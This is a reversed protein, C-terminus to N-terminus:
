FVVYVSGRKLARSWGSDLMMQWVDKEMMRKQMIRADAVYHCSMAHTSLWSSNTCLCEEQEGTQIEHGLQMQNAASAAETFLQSV